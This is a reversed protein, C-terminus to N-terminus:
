EEVRIRIKKKTVTWEGSTLPKNWGNKRAQGVSTFIGAKAMVHAMLPNKVEAFDSIHFVQAPAAMNGDEDLDWWGELFGEIVFEQHERKIREMFAAHKEPHAERWKRGEELKCKHEADRELRAGEISLAALEEHLKKLHAQSKAITAREAEMEKQVTEIDQKLSMM